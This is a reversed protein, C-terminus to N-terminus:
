NVRGDAPAFIDNVHLAARECRMTSVGNWLGSVFAPILVHVCSHRGFACVSSAVVALVRGICFVACAGGHSSKSTQGSIQPGDKFGNAETQSTYSIIATMHASLRQAYTANIVVM